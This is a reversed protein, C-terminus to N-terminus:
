QNRRRESVGSGTRQKDRVKAADASLVSGSSTVAAEDLGFLNGTRDKANAGAAALRLSQKAMEAAVAEGATNPPVCAVADMLLAHALHDRYAM